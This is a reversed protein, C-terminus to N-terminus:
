LMFANMLSLAIIIIPIVVVPDTLNKKFKRWNRRNRM